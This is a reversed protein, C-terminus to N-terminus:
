QSVYSFKYINLTYGTFLWEWEMINKFNVDLEFLVFLISNRSFFFTQWIYLPFKCERLM